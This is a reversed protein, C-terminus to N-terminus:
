HIEELHGKPDSEGIDGAVIEALRDALGGAGEVTIALRRESAGVHALQIHLRPSPLVDSVRRAWEVAAVGGAHMWELGGDQLLARERGEM